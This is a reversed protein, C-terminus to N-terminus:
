FRMSSAAGCLCPPYIKGSDSVSVTGVLIPRGTEHVQAIEEVVANFKGKKSGYIVHNQDKRVMPRHTPIEVVQLNYISQFEAEETKATGTMGSLKNSVYPFFEPVHDDCANESSEREVKVGEKAEIAQHLGDSYRRGIMLRGTFEDVIVVENDETVVYERDRLFLRHAKLAQNIHHVIETNEIDTLNELGFFQEAKGVGEETLNIAKMKEDVEYDEEEKLRRM